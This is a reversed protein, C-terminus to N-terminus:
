DHGHVELRLSEIVQRKTDEPILDCATKAMAAIRPSPENRALLTALIDGVSTASALRVPSAALGLRLARLRIQEVSEQTSRAVDTDEIRLM